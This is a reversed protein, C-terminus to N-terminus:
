SGLVALTGAAVTVTKSNGFWRRSSHILSFPERSGEEGWLLLKGPGSFAAMSSGM